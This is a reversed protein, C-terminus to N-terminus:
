CNVDALDPERAEAWRREFEELYLRAIGADALVLVNEDNSDAANNTFNLSGTVVVTDDIIIVKHHLMGPNGDRRVPIGACYLPGLESYITESGFTEFIGRVDVGAAARERMTAGLEDNTFSFAMFDISREALGALQVLAALPEDEPAFRIVFPRGNRDLVDQGPRAPSRPGFQGAWMEAFEAEFVAAVEPSEIVVVNNNNRFLDNTTLNMSGTWVIHGDIIVFKNHMFASRLDDRIPIGADEMLAFQGRGAEGDADIGNEDDTVWRVEVGRAHARALAEAVPTLDTEFAAIHISTQAADIYRILKDLIYQGNAQNGRAGPSFLVAWWGGDFGMEPPLEIEQGPLTPAPGAVLTPLPAPSGAPRTATPRLTPRVDPTPPALTPPIPSPSVPPTPAGAVLTPLPIHTGPPLPTSPPRSPAACGVALLMGVLLGYGALRRGHIMAEGLGM